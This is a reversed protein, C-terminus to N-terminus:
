RIIGRETTELISIFREVAPWEQAIEKL